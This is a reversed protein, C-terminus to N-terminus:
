LYMRLLMDAWDMSETGGAGAQLTAIADHGDYPGSLLAALEVKELDAQLGTVAEDLEKTLEADDADSLLEDITLADDLDRQLADFRDVVAKLRALSSTIRQGKSPDDWLSPDSAQRELEAVQTRKGDVDFSGGPPASANPSAACD